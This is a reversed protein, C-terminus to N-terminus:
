FDFQNCEKTYHKDVGNIGNEINKKCVWCWHTKCKKCTMHNCGGNKETILTCGPCHATKNSKMEQVIVNRTKEDMDILKFEECTYGKHFETKCQLCIHHGCPFTAHTMKKLKKKSVWTYCSYIPCMVVFQKNELYLGKIYKNYKDMSDMQALVNRYSKDCLNVNIDKKLVFEKRQVQAPIKVFVGQTIKNFEDKEESYKLKHEDYYNQVIKCFVELNAYWKFRRTKKVCIISKEDLENYLVHCEKPYEKHFMM